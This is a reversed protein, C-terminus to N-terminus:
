TSRWTTTGFGNQRSQGIGVIEATNFIATYTERHKDEDQLIYTIKGQMAPTKRKNFPILTTKVTNVSYWTETIRGLVHMANLLLTETITFEGVTFMFPTMLTEVASVSFKPLKSRTYVNFLKTPAKLYLTAKDRSLQKEMIMDTVDRAKELKVRLIVDNIRLQLPTKLAELIDRAKEILGTVGGIHVMYEGNVEAPVLKTEGEVSIYYPTVADGLEWERKGPKFLPSIHIPSVIGKIGHFLRLEKALAYLLTKTIKGTHFAITSDAEIHLYARVARVPVRM